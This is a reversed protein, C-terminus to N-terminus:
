RVERLRAQLVPTSLGAPSTRSPSGGPRSPKHTPTHAMDADAADAVAPAAAGPSAAVETPATLSSALKRLESLQHATSILHILTVIWMADTLDIGGQVIIHLTLCKHITNPALTPYYVYLQLVM